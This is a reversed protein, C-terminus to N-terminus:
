RKYNYSIINDSCVGYCGEINERHIEPMVSVCNKIQPIGPYKWLHGHSTITVDDEQHYFYNIKTITQELELRKFEEIADINKCHVWLNESRELLWELTVGYQAEDHGLFFTESIFWVDVEVDYGQEIATDIYNPNNEFGEHKGNINGRHSILVM